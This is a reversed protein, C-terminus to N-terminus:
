EWYERTYTDTNYYLRTEYLNNSPGGYVATREYFQMVTPIGPELTRVKKYLMVTIKYDMPFVGSLFMGALAGVVTGVITSIGGSPVLTGVAAGILGGVVSHPLGGVDFSNSIDYVTTWPTPYTIALTNERGVGRSSDILVGSINFLKGNVSFQSLADNFEVFYYGNNDEVVFSNTGWYYYIDGTARHVVTTKHAAAIKDSVDQYQIAKVTSVAEEPRKQLNAASVPQTVITFLVIFSMIMSIYRKSKM